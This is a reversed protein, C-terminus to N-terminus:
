YSCSYVTFVFPAPLFARGRWRSAVAASKKRTLEAKASSNGVIVNFEGPDVTWDQIKADYHSFARCDLTVSVNGYSKRSKRM